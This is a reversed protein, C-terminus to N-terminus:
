GQLSSLEPEVAVLAIKFFEHTGGPAIAHQDSNDAVTVFGMARYRDNQTALRSPSRDFEHAAGCTAFIQGTRSPPAPANYASSISAGSCPPFQLGDKIKLFKFINKLGRRFNGEFRVGLLLPQQYVDESVGDGCPLAGIQQVPRM